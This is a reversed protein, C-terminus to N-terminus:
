KEPLFLELPKRKAKGVMISRVVYTLSGIFPNHWNSVIDIGVICELDSFYGCSLNSSGSHGSHSPGSSDMIM